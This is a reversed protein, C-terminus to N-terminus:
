QGNNGKGRGGWGSHTRCEINEHAVHLVLTVYGYGLSVAVGITVMASEPFYNTATMQRRMIDGNTVRSPVPSPYDDTSLDIIEEAQMTTTSTVGSHDPPLSKSKHVPIM